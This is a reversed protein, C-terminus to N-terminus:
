NDTEVKVKKGDDTDKIKVERNETEMKIKTEGDDSKMKVEAGDERMEEIIEEESTKEERCSVFAIMSFVSLSLAITKLTTKM